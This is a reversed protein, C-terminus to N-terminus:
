EPMPLLRAETRIDSDRGWANVAEVFWNKKKPHAKVVDQEVFFSGDSHFVLGGQKMGRDNVWDGKLSYEGSGPDFELYYRAEAPSMLKVAQEEFGLKIVEQEFRQSISEALVKIEAYRNEVAQDSNTEMLELWYIM